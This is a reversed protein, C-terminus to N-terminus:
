GKSKNPWLMICVVDFLLIAIGTRWLTDGMGTGVFFVAIIFSLAAGVFLIIQFYRM